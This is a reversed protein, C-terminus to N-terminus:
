EGGVLGELLGSASALILAETRGRVGMASYIQRLRRYTERESFGVQRALEQITMGSALRRLWTQQASTLTQPKSQRVSRGVLRRAMSVPLLALGNLGAELAMLIREGSSDLSVCGCAGAELCTSLREPSLPDLLAVVAMSPNNSVLEDLLEIDADVRIGILMAQDHHKKAWGRPDDTPEVEYGFETIASSLGLLVLSPTNVVALQHTLPAGKTCVGEWSGCTTAPYM